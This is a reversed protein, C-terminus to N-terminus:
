GQMGCNRRDAVIFCRDDHVVIRNYLSQAFYGVHAVSFMPADERDAGTETIGPEGISVGDVFLRVNHKRERVAESEM